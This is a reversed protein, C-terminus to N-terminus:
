IYDKQNYNQKKNFKVLVLINLIALGLYGAFLIWNKKFLAIIQELKAKREQELFYEQDVDGALFGSGCVITMLKPKNKPKPMMLVFFDDKYQMYYPMKELELVELVKVYVEYKMKKGLHIQIGNVTDNVRNLKRLAFQLDNIKKNELDLSNNM